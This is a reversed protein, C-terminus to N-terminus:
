HVCLHKLAQLCVAVVVVVLVELGFLIPAQNRQCYDSIGKEYCENHLNLSIM